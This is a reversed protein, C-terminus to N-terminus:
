LKTISFLITVIHIAESNYYGKETELSHNMDSYVAWVAGFKKYNFKMSM